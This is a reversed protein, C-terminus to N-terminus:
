RAYSFTRIQPEIKQILPYMELTLQTGNIYDRAQNITANEDYTLRLEDQVVKSLLNINLTTYNPIAKMLIRRALKQQKLYQEKLANEINDAISLQRNDDNKAHTEPPIMELFNLQEGKEQGKPTATATEITM